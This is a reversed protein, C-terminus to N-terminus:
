LYSIAESFAGGGAEDDVFGTGGAVREGDDAATPAAFIEVEGRGIFVGAADGDLAPEREVGGLFDEGGGALVEFGEFGGGGGLGEFGDGERGL